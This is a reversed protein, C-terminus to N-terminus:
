INSAESTVRAIGDFWSLWDEYSADERPTKFGWQEIQTPLLPWAGNEVSIGDIQLVPSQEGLSSSRLGMHVDPGNDVVCPVDFVYWSNLHQVAVPPPVELLFLTYNLNADGGVTTM